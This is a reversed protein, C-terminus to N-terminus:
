VLFLLELVHVHIHVSSVHQISISYNSILSAQFVLYLNKHVNSISHYTSAQKKSHYHATHSVYSKNM